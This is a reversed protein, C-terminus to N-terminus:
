IKSPVVEVSAGRPADLAHLGGDMSALKGGHHHALAMLYADTIQKHGGLRALVPNLAALADLDAPWFLHKPHKLSVALIQLAHAPSVADPSFAPNSVIRVFATQTFPCTAWHQSARKAFWNQAATHHVHSPWLLAVLVNVDLLYGKM